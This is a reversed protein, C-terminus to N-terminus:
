TIIGISGRSYKWDTAIDTAIHIFICHMCVFRDFKAVDKEKEKDKEREQERESEQEIEMTEIIEENQLSIFYKHIDTRRNFHYTDNFLKKKNDCVEDTM